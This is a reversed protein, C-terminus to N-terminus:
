TLAKRIAGVLEEISREMEDFLKCGAARVHGGGGFSQAVASVDVRGASRISAKIQGNESEKLLIGVEVGDVNLVYNVIGELDESVAGCNELDDRMVSVWGIRRDESFSIRALVTQLLKLRGYTMKELLHDALEYASVGIALLESAMAMVAPSTNSYRFGGTDTLLGTYLAIACTLNPTMGAHKILDYIIEVTAAADARIINLSGFANNTPHHDINLLPTAQATFAHRIEGLRSYDACDLAIVADYQLELTSEYKMISDYHYLFSLRGPLESENTIIVKKGFQELLWSMASCSSIADGDPHEHAVVLFSEYRNIFAIAKELQESYHLAVSM